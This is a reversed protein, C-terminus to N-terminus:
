PKLKRLVTEVGSFHNQCEGQHRYGFFQIALGQIIAPFAIVLELPDGSMVQGAEQGQRVLEM